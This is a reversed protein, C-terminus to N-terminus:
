SSFDGETKDTVTAKIKGDTFYVDIEDGIKIESASKIPKGDIEIRFLSKKLLKAPNNSDLKLLAHEFEGSKKFLINKYALALNKEEFDLKKKHFAIMKDTFNKSKVSSFNNLIEAYKDCKRKIFDSM